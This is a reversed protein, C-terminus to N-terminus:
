AFKIFKTLLNGVGATYQQTYYQASVLFYFHGNNTSNTIKFGEALPLLEKGLGPVPLADMPPLFFNFFLIKNISPVEKKLCDLRAQEISM